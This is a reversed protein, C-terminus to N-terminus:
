RCLVSDPKICIKRICLLDARCLTGAELDCAGGESGPILCTGDKCMGGTLDGGVCASRPETTPSCPEGGNVIRTSVICEGRMQPTISCALGFNYSDCFTNVNDCAIQEERTAACLHNTRACTLWPLCVTQENDCAEGEASARMCVENGTSLSFGCTSGIACRDREDKCSEGDALRPQCTGCRESPKRGCYTSECQAGGFCPSEDTRTGAKVTCAPVANTNNLFSRVDDCSASSLAQGCAAVDAATVIAGGADYTARCVAVHFSTCTAVDGFHLALQYPSCAGHRACVASAFEACAEAATPGGGEGGAGGGGAASGGHGLPPSDGGASCACLISFGGFGIWHAFNM